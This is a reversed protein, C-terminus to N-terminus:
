RLTFRKTTSLRGPTVRLTMRAGKLRSRKKRATTTLRLRVTVDRRAERDGVRPRRRHVQQKEPGERGRIRHGEGQGSRGDM